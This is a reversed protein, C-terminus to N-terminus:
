QGPGGATGLVGALESRTSDAKGTVDIARLPFASGSQRSITRRATSQAVIEENAVAVPVSTNAAAVNDATRDEFREARM